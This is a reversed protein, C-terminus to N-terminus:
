VTKENFKVRSIVILWICALINLGIGLHPYASTIMYYHGEEDIALFPFISDPFCGSIIVYFLSLIGMSLFVFGAFVVVTLPISFKRFTNAGWLLISTLLLLYNVVLPLFLEDTMIINSWSMMPGMWISVKEPHTNLFWQNYMDAFLMICVMYISFLFFHTIIGWLFKSWFKEPISAPLLLLSQTRKKSGTEGYFIIISFALSIPCIFVMFFTLGNNARMPNKEVFAWFCFYLIAIFTLVVWLSAVKLANCKWENLLFKGFRQINFNNNM